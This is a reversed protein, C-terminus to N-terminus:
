RDHQGSGQPADPPARTAASLRQEILAVARLQTENLLDASHDTLLGEASAGLQGFTEDAAFEQVIHGTAAVLDAVLSELEAEDTHADLAEFRANLDAYVGLDSPDTLREYFREVSPMGEDGVLHALLILHERDFRALEPSRSIEEFTKSFRAIEPPLDPASGERRLQAILARRAALRTIEAELESDLRDLLSDQGGEGGDLLGPLAQLPIGLESLRKIRLVRILDHVDYRRYGNIGRDPEPLIGLQHYHRLARVTVGALRALESSRM